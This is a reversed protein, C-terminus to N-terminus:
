GGPQTTAVAAGPDCQIYAAVNQAHQAFVSAEDGILADDVRQAWLDRQALV